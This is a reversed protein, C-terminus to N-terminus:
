ARRATSPLGLRDFQQPPLVQIHRQNHDRAADSLVGRDLRELGARGIIKQFITEAAETLRDTPRDVFPPKLAFLFFCFIPHSEREFRCADARPFGIEPGASKPPGVRQLLQM